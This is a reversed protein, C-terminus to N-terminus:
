QTEIFRRSMTANLRPVIWYNYINLRMWSSGTQLATEPVAEQYHTSTFKESQAWKIVAQYIREWFHSPYNIESYGLLMYIRRPPRCSHIFTLGPSELASWIIKKAGAWPAASAATATSFRRILYNCRFNVRNNENMKFCWLRLNSRCKHFCKDKM